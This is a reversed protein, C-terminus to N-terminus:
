VLPSSPLLHHWVLILDNACGPIKPAKDDQHVIDGSAAVGAFVALLLLVALSSRAM